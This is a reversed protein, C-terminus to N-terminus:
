GDSLTDEAVHTTCNRLPYNLLTRMGQASEVVNIAQVEEVPQWEDVM